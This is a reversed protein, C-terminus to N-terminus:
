QTRQHHLYTAHETRASLMSPPGNSTRLFVFMRRKNNRQEKQNQRASHKRRGRRSRVRLSTFSDPEPTRRVHLTAFLPLSVFTATLCHPLFYLSAFLSFKSILFMLFQAFVFICSLPFFLVILLFRSCSGLFSFAEFSHFDSCDSLNFLVCQFIFSRLVILFNM